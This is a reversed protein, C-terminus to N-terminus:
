HDGLFAEVFPVSEVEFERGNLYSLIGADGKFAFRLKYSYLAQGSKGGGPLLKDWGDRTLKGYKGDGVLPWGAAAMQARIQHTRGTVLRCEVLSVDGRASITRYITKAIKAGPRPFSSVYVQKKAMDRLIYGELMGAPPQPRGHVLCMYYKETERNKIKENMIRMAEANKAAIVIGGTNRDIRNCLAPAFSNEREPAFEGKIYLYAQLHTILTNIQERDDPHSLLGAPKDLLIINEDEYVIRLEPTKIHMFATDPTTEAAFEDSIYARVVDGESLRTSMECRKGNIKIDKKRIAKHLYSDPLLPFNKKIFRDVRLGEDNKTAVLEKM